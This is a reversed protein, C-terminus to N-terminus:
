FDLPDVTFGPIESTYDLDHDSNLKVQPKTFKVKAVGELGMINADAWV